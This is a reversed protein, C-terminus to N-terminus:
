SAAEDRGGRLLRLSTAHITPPEQRPIRYVDPRHVIVGRVPRSAPIAAGKSQIGVLLRVFLVCGVLVGGVAVLTQYLPVHMGLDFAVAAVVLLAAAPIV